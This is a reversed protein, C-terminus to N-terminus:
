GAAYEAELDIAFQKANEIYEDIDIMGHKLFHDIDIEGVEAAVPAPDESVPQEEVVSQAEAQSRMSEYRKRLSIIEDEDLSCLEGRDNLNAIKVDHYYVKSQVVYFVEDDKTTMTQWDDLTLRYVPLGRFKGLKTM